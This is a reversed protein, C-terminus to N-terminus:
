PALSYALLHSKGGKGLLNGLETVVVLLRQKNLTIGQLALELEEGVTGSTFRGDDYKFISIWTKTLGPTVQLSGLFSRESSSALLENRGDADLDVAVPSIEFAATTPKSDKSDPEIDYTLFSLTGGMKKVSKYIRQKGNFIFLNGNRIFASELKGDGTLDALLSGLVPFRRPLKMELSGTRIDNGTLELLTIREGYFTEENFDQGLLTEPLGDADVDFAGLIRPIRIPLPSLRNGALRFILGVVTNDEWTTVVLHPTEAATPVWWKLALVRAPTSPRSSGVPELEHTLKFIEITTGDTSAIWLNGDIFLFDAMLSTNPLAAISQVQKYEPTVVPAKATSPLRPLAPAAALPAQPASKTPMSASGLPYRRLENFEPDRVVLENQAYIFTLTNATAATPKAQSPRQKQTPHYERWKLQPLKQRLKSYVPEGKGSYDWFIAPLLAYRRIADGKAITQSKDLVRTFSYGNAMRTVKLIGKLTELKGLVKQTVPHVIDKGPGVVAFIDGNRIGHSADLDIIFEGNEKMVVYGALPAFDRAIDDELAAHVPQIMLVMFICVIVTRRLISIITRM